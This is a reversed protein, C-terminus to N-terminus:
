SSAIKTLIAALAKRFQEPTAVDFVQPDLPKLLPALEDIGRFPQRRLRGESNLFIGELPQYRIYFVLVDPEASVEIPRMEVGPEFFVNSSLVIVVRLPQMGTDKRPKVRRRIQNLFFQANYQRDQLSKLDIIGPNAADLSSEAQFWDLDHVNEQHFAVRRRALDLLALNFNANRWEVQSLVKAAPILAGLNRNQVRASGSSREAPTLNVLLTIDAPRRTEAKLNLRGAVSPLYWRGSATEPAIFEVAPLGTWMGPLPDNKLAPVHLKREIVNHEGTGTDYASASLQYEGPLAFFSQVYEPEDRPADYPNQWVRGTQDTLQLRVNLDGKYHRAAIGVTLALRQHSSLEPGSVEVAIRLPMEAAATLAFLFLLAVRAMQLLLM